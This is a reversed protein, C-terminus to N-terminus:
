LQDGIAARELSVIKASRQTNIATALRRGYAEEHVFATIELEEGDDATLTLIVYKTSGCNSYRAKVDIVGFINLDIAM